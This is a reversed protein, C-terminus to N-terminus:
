DFAMPAQFLLETNKSVKDLAGECAEKIQELKMTKLEEDELENILQMTEPFCAAPDRKATMWFPVCFDLLLKPLELTIFGPRQKLEGSYAYAGHTIDFYQTVLEMEFALSVAISKNMSSMVAVLEAAEKM